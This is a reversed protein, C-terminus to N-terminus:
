DTGKKGFIDLTEANMIKKYNEDDSFDREKKYEGGLAEIAFKLEQFLVYGIDEREITGELVPLAREDGYSALYGCMLPLEEDDSRLFANMLASYARDDKKKLRSLIELAYPETEENGCLALLEELVADANPKLMDALSDKVHEDYADERLMEAYRKAAKPEADLLNIAYLVLQEDTEYLLKMLQESCDRAELEECLIDPVSIEQLIYEKLTEVLQTESMSGFYTRPTIGIEKLPADKFKSYMDAILDEWESETHEAAHKEIMKAMKRNFIEDFDILKM